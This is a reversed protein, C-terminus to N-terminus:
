HTLSVWSRKLRVRRLLAYLHPRTQCGSILHRHMESWCSTQMSKVYAPHLTRVFYETRQLDCNFRSRGFLMRGGVPTRVYLCPASDSFLAETPSDITQGKDLSIDTKEIGDRSNVRHPDRGSIPLEGWIARVRKEVYEATRYYASYFLRNALAITSTYGQGDTSKTPPLSKIKITSIDEGRYADCGCSERFFGTYCSKSHNIKLGYYHFNELLYKAFGGKVIIDDGYVYVNKLAEKKSQQGHVHLCAVGLAWFCLAEVPFCLSSGMPAFKRMHVVEGTPLVTSTSRTGMLYPYIDTGEFLSKVLALSVRDSADSLDLTDFSQDVSGIMALNRNVKQDRFNVKGRTLPHREVYNVLAKGLGQQLWQLELPEASILRPGRSDKPVLMVKAQPEPIHQLDWYKDWEDFLQEEYLYYYTHAPYVEEASNFIRKFNMKEQPKEGTAVSGPGHQPHIDRPNFERLLGHLLTRAEALVIPELRTDCSGLHNFDHPLTRDTSTFKELVKLEDKEDYPVELKYWIFCIQLADKIATIDPSELVFGDAGIFLKLLGKLFHPLASGRQKKFATTHFRRGLLCSHISKGLSPLSKTLFGLGEAHTRDALTQQDRVPDLGAQQLVDQLLNLSLGLAYMILDTRELSHSNLDGM